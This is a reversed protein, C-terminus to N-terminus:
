LSNSNQNEFIAEKLEKLISNIQYLNDNMNFVGKKIEKLENITEKYLENEVDEATAQKKSNRACYSHEGSSSVFAPVKDVINNAM